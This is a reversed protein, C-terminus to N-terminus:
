DGRWAVLAREWPRAPPTILAHNPALTTSYAPRSFWHPHLGVTPEFGVGVAVSLYSIYFLKEQYPISEFKDRLKRPKRRINGVTATQQSRESGALPYIM